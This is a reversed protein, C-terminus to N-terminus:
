FHVEDDPAVDDASPAEVTAEGGAPEAVVPLPAHSRRKSELYRQLLEDEHGDPGRAMEERIGGAEEEYARNCLRHLLESCWEHPRAKDCTREMMRGALERAAEDELQALVAVPTVERDGEHLLLAAEAVQRAAPRRMMDLDLHQRVQPVTEPYNLMVQVLEEEVDRGAPAEADQAADGPRPRRVLVRDLRERLSAAPVALEGALRSLAFSRSVPNPMRAVLEIAEDVARAQSLASGSEAGQTVTRVRFALADPAADIVERFADGGRQQLFDCPDLGDPLVAVRAELEGEVLATLSRNASNIGAADGDFVVCVEDVFRHMYRVHDPTLATGLVAVTNAMEYEHAMIADVYGEVVVAKRTERMAMKARGSLYLLRGKQYVPTEPTNLYKPEGDGLVRGGFGVARGQIDLIPFMIRDRFRDYCGGDERAVTLGAAILVGEALGDRRAAKLLSDWGGPAYGLQYREIAEASFQRALLYERAAKGAHTKTLCKHYLKAAWANADYLPSKADGSESPRGAEPIDIGARRALLRVSEQFGVGEMKQVFSFVDGGEGCGFCKFIDKEASVQFSPTKEKHFPCCAWYGRGKRKLSEPLYSQVM